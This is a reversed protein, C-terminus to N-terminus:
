SGVAGFWCLGWVAGLLIAVAPPVGFWASEAYTVAAVVVWWPELALSKGSTTEPTLYGIEWLRYVATFVLGVATSNIGRLLSIVYSKTRIVRWISQVGVALTLGPLFISIYALLAGIITPVDGKGEVQASVHSSSTSALTLAGLFVGFNFNPGPFAQIIALGLLFDRPSVWGPDVVYSRLLPIVVPGGGFIITGALYINAFLSLPLPPHTLLGRLLMVTIFSALFAVIILLGVKVPIGHTTTDAVPASQEQNHSRTRSGTISSTQWREGKEVRQIKLLDESAIVAPRRQIAESSHPQPDVIAVSDMQIREETSSDRSERKRRWKAKIKGIKQQLWVDWIVTTVGGILILVPFYWLANYCLGACAGFIVLIRTIQDKIAKEALQVAALAIIGVTSANVGSLLAYVISPLVEPMNQVGLSLCYMGLAGPLSWVLFVFIAPLLGAHILAICFAMKTSAPGPLAQCIAFLEQYTQEDMWKTKGGVGDVFRRHLIQFHVPPGGFATFGLDWTRAIVDGIRWKLSKTNAQYAARQDRTSDRLARYTDLLPM